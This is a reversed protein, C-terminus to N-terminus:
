PAVFGMRGDFSSSGNNPRCMGDAMHKTVADGIKRGDLNVTTNVQIPATSVPPPGVVYSHSSPPVAHPNIGRGGPGRLGKKIDEEQSYSHKSLWWIGAAAAGIAALGIAIPGLVAVLASGSVAAGSLAPGLIAVGRLIPIGLKMVMFLGKFSATLMLVTGGFLMVASLGAFGKVLYDFRVPHRTIWTGLDRIASSLSNLAPIIIPVLTEGAAINLDRLSANLAAEAGDPTNRALKILDSVGMAHMDTAVNKAIKDSQQFMTATLMAGVRNGLLYSIKEIVERDIKAGDKTLTPILIKEIWAQTSSQYLGEEVLAGPKIRKVHGIKDYEVKSADVLNLRALEKAAATTGKGLVLNQYASMLGTGVRNGGMEQILPEMGFYFEKDSLNKAANGGTTLFARMDTPMVMGGTGTMVRQMMNLQRELDEPSKWGGRMEIVKLAAEMQRDDFQRGHGKFVAKNAFQMQALMPAAAKALDYHGEGFITYLTKMTGMLDPAAVGYLHAGRAFQNADRNIAEGLNLSKFRAFAEEYDKAANYAKHLMHFGLGGVGAMAAGIGGLLSIDRLTNKLSVAAADTMAFDRSMKRLAGTVNETLAIRVGIKYAEIM